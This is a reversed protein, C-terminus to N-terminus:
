NSEVKKIESSVDKSLEMNQFTENDSLKMDFSQTVDYSLEATKFGLGLVHGGKTKDSSVFHLHWGPTNLGQMYDPCFLGVVTGEINEYNFETQDTELAKDLPKYPKEQKLESRVYMKEFTGDLKIMYFMNKGNEAVVKDLEAEVEARIRQRSVNVFPALHAISLTQGGYQCSAIIAMIQTAINCATSFSHPKEILTDNIVTGNQLMDAADWVCCNHMHQVFYDTDHIHIIGDKHATVCDEPFLVKYSIDRSVEGAIYDRQTSLMIPNKNSNEDLVEQNVMDAISLIAGHIGASGRALERKYRYRVYSRSVDWYGEEALMREVENQIDEVSMSTQGNTRIAYAIKYKVRNPVAGSKTIAKIIRAANFPVMKGDRKIVTTVM